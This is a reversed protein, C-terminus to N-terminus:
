HILRTDQRKDFLGSTHSTYVRDLYRQIQEYSLHQEQLQKIQKEIFGKNGLYTSTYILKPQPGYPNDDSHLGYVNSLMKASPPGGSVLPTPAVHSRDYEKVLVRKTNDNSAKLSFRQTKVFYDNLTANDIAKRSKKQSKKSHKALSVSLVLLLLVIKM